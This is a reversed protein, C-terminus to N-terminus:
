IYDCFGNITLRGDSLDEGHNNWAMHPILSDFIVIRNQKFRVFSNELAGDDSEKDYAKDMWKENQEYFKTGSSLNTESLYILYAWDCSDQHIFDGSNDNATRLHAYQVQLWPRQTFIAGTKEVQNIIFTNLIPNNKQFKATRLGPYTEGGNSEPHEEINYYKMEHVEKTVAKLLSPTFFNDIVILTDNGLTNFSNM